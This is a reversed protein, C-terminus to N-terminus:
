SLLFSEFAEFALSGLDVLEVDAGGGGGLVALGNGGLLELVRDLRVLLLELLWERVPCLEDEEFANEDGAIGADSRLNLEPEGAGGMTTTLASLVSEAGRMPWYPEGSLCVMPM